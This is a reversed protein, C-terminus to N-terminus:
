SLPTMVTRRYSPRSSLEEFWRAVAPAAPREVPLAFWRWIGCGIPIDAATFIDGAVFRRGTLHTDLLAVADATRLRSTEMAEPDRQDPPTRILNWFLPRIAPWFTSDQWSMWRDADARVRLDHPWLTGPAHTAALYRVIANSEWLIFGDEELTPVLGNPNLRRYEPTDVVGYALGADIRDHALGLEDCIWLVKQVNVSNARGWVIRRNVRNM